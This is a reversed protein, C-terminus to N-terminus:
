EVGPGGSGSYLFFVGIVLGYGGSIGECCREGFLPWSIFHRSGLEKEM